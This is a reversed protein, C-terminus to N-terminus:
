TQTLDTFRPVKARFFGSMDTLVSMDNCSMHLRYRM